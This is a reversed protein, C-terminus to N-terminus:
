TLGLAFHFLFTKHFTLDKIGCPTYKHLAAWGEFTGAYKGFAM